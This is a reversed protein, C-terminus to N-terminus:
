TTKKTFNDGKFHENFNGMILDAEGGCECNDMKRNEVKKIKEYKNKCARCEYKYMPM